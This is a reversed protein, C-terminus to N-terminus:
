LYSLVRAIVLFAFIVGLAWLVDLPPRLPADPRDVLVRNLERGLLALALIAGVVLGIATM